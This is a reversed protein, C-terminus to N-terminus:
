DSHGDAGYPHLAPSGPRRADGCVKDRDGAVAWGNGTRQLWLTVYGSKAEGRAIADNEDGASGHFHRLGHYAVQVEVRYLDHAWEPGFGSSYSIQDVELWRGAEFCSRAEALATAASPEAPAAASAAEARDDPSCGAVTMTVLALAAM